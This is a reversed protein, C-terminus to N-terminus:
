IFSKIATAFLVTSASVTVRQNLDAETLVLRVGGQLPQQLLPSESRGPAAAALNLDIPETEFELVAIRLDPIPEVGRSAVRIGEHKARFFRITQRM